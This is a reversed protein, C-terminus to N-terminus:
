QDDDENIYPSASEKEEEYEPDTDIVIDGFHLKGGERYVEFEEAFDFVRGAPSDLKSGKDWSMIGITGSDVYYESNRNRYCGDGNATPLIVFLHDTGEYSYHVKGSMGNRDFKGSIMQDWLDSDRYCLDGILYRGAPLRMM